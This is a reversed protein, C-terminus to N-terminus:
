DLFQEMVPAADAVRGTKALRQRAKTTESTPKRRSEAAPGPTADRVEDITKRAAQRAKEAADFKMAKRLVVILRHDHISGIEEPTLGLGKAYEKLASKDATRVKEDVWEPIAASLKEQESKFREQMEGQADELVKQEAKEREEAIVKMRKRHEDWQERQEAYARPNEQRLKGWDPEVPTVDNIAQELQALKTAYQLNKERAAKTEAELAKRREANEQSKRTYDAERLTGRELEDADEADLEIEAGSKPLKYKKRAKGTDDNPEDGENEDAGELQANEASEDRESDSPEGSEESQSQRPTVKKEAQTERITKKDEPSDSLFGALVPTASEVTLGQSTGSDQGEIM